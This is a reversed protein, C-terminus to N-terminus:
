FKRKDLLRCSGSSLENNTVYTTKGSVRNITIETDNLSAVIFAENFSVQYKTEDLSDLMSFTRKGENFIYTYDLNNIKCLIYTNIRYETKEIKAIEINDQKSKDEKENIADMSEVTINKEEPIDEVFLEKSINRTVCYKFPITLLGSDFLHLNIKNNNILFFHNRYGIYYDGRKENISLCVRYGSYTKGLHDISIKTPENIFEVRAKKYNTLNEILYIKLIKQYNTPEQGFSVKQLNLNESPALLSPTPIKSCTALCLLCVFILTSKM